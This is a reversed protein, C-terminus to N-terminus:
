IILKEQRARELAEDIIQQKLMENKEDDLFEKHEKILSDVFGQVSKRKESLELLKHILLSKYDDLSFLEKPEGHRYDDISVWENKKIFMLKSHSDFYIEKDRFRGAIGQEFLWERFTNNGWDLVIVRYGMNIFDEPKIWEYRTRWSDKKHEYSIQYTLDEALREAEKMTTASNITEIILNEM